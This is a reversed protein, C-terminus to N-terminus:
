AGTHQQVAVEDAIRKRVEEEAGAELDRRREEWRPLLHKEMHEVAAEPSDIVMGDRVIQEAGTTAGRQADEGFGQDKMSLPNEPIWQDLFSVGSKLMFDRYVRVPDKPYSGPPNGSLSELQSWQMTQFLWTPIERTPRMAITDLALGANTQWRDTFASFGAAATM